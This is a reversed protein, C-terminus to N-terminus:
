TERTILPIEFDRTSKLRPISSQEERTALLVTINDHGGRKKAEAVLRDAAASINESANIIAIIDEDTVLDYLGDSCLLLTNRTDFAIDAKLVDGNVHSKTGLASLLVNREPHSGAQDETIQGMDVLQQVVTQDKSLRLFRDKGLFYARSDGVHALYVSSGRIVVATITTGMGAYQPDSLSADFVSQNAKKLAYKLSKCINSRHNFYADTFVTLAIESAVEGSNHGGMGDALVLLCGKHKQLPEEAFSIVAGDENNTRVNGIDTAIVATLEELVARNRFRRVQVNDKKLFWNM